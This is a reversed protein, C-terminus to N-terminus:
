STKRGCRATARERTSTSTSWGAEGVSLATPGEVWDTSFAPGAACWPGDPTDAFAMRLHKKPTPWRTEDKVIMGFRSGLDVITGDIVNFGGDYLLRTPTFDCLGDHDHRLAPPQAQEGATTAASDRDRPLPRPHHEVLLDPVPESARDYLIEPAWANRAEPEHAMVPVFQQPTWTKLDKSHALGIGRDWWGTTWVLHFTGDPGQLLCPDRM